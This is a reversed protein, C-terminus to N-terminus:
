SLPPSRHSSSSFGGSSAAPHLGLRYLAQATPYGTVEIGEAEQFRKMAEVTQADYVGTPPGPLFGREILARQIELVRERPILGAPRLVLRRAARRQAVRRNRVRSSTARRSRARSRAAPRASVRSSRRQAWVSEPRGEELRGEWFPPAWLLLLLSGLAGGRRVRNATM